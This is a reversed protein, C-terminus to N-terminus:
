PASRADSRRAVILSINDRAGAAFAKAVLKRVSQLPTKTDRLSDGIVQNVVMDTLGDSCLLLTEGPALPPDVSVHPEVPVPFSTGGIAQTLAHSRRPGLRDDAGTPVDDNSLQVLQGGSFVYCRSDGVNFTVVRDPTLAAGVLTTGMGIAEEHESMIKFLQQNAQEIVEACSAPDSLRDAAAVLYDLVARSAMAGQAHGGMGDAIMLLPCGSHATIVLPSDMDGTLIRNGIGVTDENHPRLRGRHTFAAITWNPM